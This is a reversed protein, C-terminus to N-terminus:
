AIQYLYLETSYCGLKQIFYEYYFHTQKVTVYLATQSNHKEWSFILERILGASFLWVWVVTDSNQM